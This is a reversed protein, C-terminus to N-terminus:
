EDFKEWHPPRRIVTGAERVQFTKGPPAPTGAQAGRRRRPGQVVTEAARVQRPGAQDGREVEEEPVVRGDLVTHAERVTSM